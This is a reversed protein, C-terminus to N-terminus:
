RRSEESRLKSMTSNADTDETGTSEAGGPRVYRWEHRCSRCHWRMAGDSQKKPRAGEDGCDPCTPKSTGFLWPLADVVLDLILEIVFM